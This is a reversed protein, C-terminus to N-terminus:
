PARPPPPAASIPRAAARPSAMAPPVATAQVPRVAASPVASNVPVPAASPAAVVAPRPASPAPVPQMRGTTAVRVTAPAVPAAAPRPIAVPNAAAPATSVKVTPQAVAAVPTAVARVMSVAVPAPEPEPEPEPPIFSERDIAARLTEADIPKALLQLGETHEAYDSLDYGSILITRVDPYQAVIYNRLTFGDMPEMVVDTILLDVGGLAEANALAKEGSTAVRVEHGRLTKLIALLAQIVATDDDVLLVRM